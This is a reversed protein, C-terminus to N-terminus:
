TYVVSLVRPTSAAIPQDEEVIDMPWTTVGAEVMDPRSVQLEFDYRGVALTDPVDLFLDESARRCDVRLM